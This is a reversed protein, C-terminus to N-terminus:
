KLCEKIYNMSFSFDEEKSGEFVLTANPCAEKILPLMDKWPMIGKGIPVQKLRDGDVIFDKIHFIEIESGFLELSEKLIDFANQYNGIYLYNYVDVIIKVHKSDLYDYLRKLVSPCYMVHGWAGEIAVCSDVSEAYEVLEKFVKASDLFGEETQNKPNYSWSDDNYSGTESGVLKANFLHAYKLCRKFYDVDSAVKEKNSHVPNFYAGMLCVDIGKSLESIEKAKEETLEVQNFNYEKVAKKLVFQMSDFGYENLSEVLEKTTARVCDHARLGIKM